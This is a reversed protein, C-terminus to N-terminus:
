KTLDDFDNSYDNVEFEGSKWKEIWFAIAEKKTAEEKIKKQVEKFLCVDCNLTYYARDIVLAIEDGFAFSFYGGNFNVCTNRGEELMASVVGNSNGM